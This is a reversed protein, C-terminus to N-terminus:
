IFYFFIIPNYLLFFIFYLIGSINSIFTTTSPFESVITIAKEIFEKTADQKDEYSGLIIGKFLLKLSTVSEIAKAKTRKELIDLLNTAFSKAKEYNKWQLMQAFWPILGIFTIIYCDFSKKIKTSILISFNHQLLKCVFNIGMEESNPNYIRKVILPLIGDFYWEPNQNLITLQQSIITEPVKKFFNCDLFLKCLQLATPLLPIFSIHSVRLVSVIIWFINLSTCWEQNQVLFPFTSLFSYQLEILTGRLTQITITHDLFPRSQFSRITRLAAALHKHLSLQLLEATVLYYQLLQKVQPDRLTTTLSNLTELSIASVFAPFPGMIWLLLSDKWEQVLSDDQLLSFCNGIVSVLLHGDLYSTNPYVPEIKSPAVKLRQHSEMNWKIYNYDEEISQKIDHINQFLDENGLNKEKLYMPIVFLLNSLFRVATSRESPQNYSLLCWTIVHHLLPLLQDISDLIFDSIVDVVSRCLKLHLLSEERQSFLDFELNPHSSFYNENGDFTLHQILPIFSPMPEIRYLYVILPRCTTQEIHKVLFEIIKTHNNSNAKALQQWFLICEKPIKYKQHVLDNTFNQFIQQLIEHSSITQTEINLYNCWPLLFNLAWHKMCDSSISSMRQFAEEFLTYTFESCYNATIDSLKSAIIIIQDQLQTSLSTLPISLINKAVNKVSESQNRDQEKGFRVPVLRQLTKLCKIRIEPHPHVLNLLIVFLLMGVNNTVINTFIQDQKNTLIKERKTRLESQHIKNQRHKVIWDSVQFLSNDNEEPEVFQDLIANLYLDSRIDTYVNNVYIPLLENFHFALLARSTHYRQDLRSAWSLADKPINSNFLPGLHVLAAFARNAEKVLLRHTQANSRNDDRKLDKTNRLKSSSEYTTLTRPATSYAFLIKFLKERSEITWKFGKGISSAINIRLPGNKCYLYNKQLAFAFSSIVQSFQIFFQETAAKPQSSFSEITTGMEDLINRVVECCGLDGQKIIDVFGETSILYSIAKSFSQYVKIKTKKGPLDIYFKYLSSLIQHIISRHASSIGLYVEELVIENDSQLNNWYANTGSSLYDHFAGSLPIKGTNRFDSTSYMLVHYNLRRIMNESINEEVKSHNLYSFIINRAEVICNLDKTIIMSCIESLIFSWLIYNQNGAAAEITLHQSSHIAVSEKSGQAVHLLFRYRSKELISIENNYLLNSVTITSDSSLAYLCNSIHIGLVRVIPSHHCFAILALTEGSVRVSDNIIVNKNHQVNDAVWIDLLILIHRLYTEITSSSSNSCATNIIGNLIKNRGEPYEYVLWQLTSSTTKALKHDPHVLLHGFFCNDIITIWFYNSAGLQICSILEAAIENYIRDKFETKVTNGSSIPLEPPIFHTIPLKSARMWSEIIETTEQEQIAQNLIWNTSYYDEETIFKLREIAMQILSSHFQKESDEFYKYNPFYDYNLKFPFLIEPYFPQNSAQYTDPNVHKMIDEFSANFRQHFNSLIKAHQQATEATISKVFYGNKDLLSRYVKFGVLRDLISVSKDAFLMPLLINLTVPINHASLQLVINSCIIVSTNDAGSKLPSKQFVSNCLSRMRSSIQKSNDLLPTCLYSNVSIWEPEKFYPLDNNPRWSLRNGQYNGQLLILISELYVDRKSNSKWNKKLLRRSLFGDYSEEFYEQSGHSICTAWLRSTVAELEDIKIWKSIKSEILQLIENKISEVDSWVISRLGNDLIEVLLIRYSKTKCNEILDTVGTIFKLVEEENKIKLYYM